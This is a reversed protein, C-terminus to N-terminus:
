SKGVKRMFEDVAWQPMPWEGKAILRRRERDKLDPSWRYEGVVDDVFMGRPGMAVCAREGSTELHITVPEDILGPLSDIAQQLPGRRDVLLWLVMNRAHKRRRRRNVRANQSM